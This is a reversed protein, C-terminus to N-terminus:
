FGKDMSPQKGDLDTFGYELAIQRTILVQGTKKIVGPDDALAVVCRGVFQPSENYTTSGKRSMIMETKTRGPCLSIVSIHYKRLEHAMDAALRNVCAKSAGYAVNSNYEFGASSTLHIILGSKREMMMQAAYASAVYNSRVGVNFMTDWFSGPAQHKWFKTAFGGKGRQMAQYGSWASNVLIDLKGQEQKIQNFVKEVDADNNHDCQIAIAQGGSQTIAEITQQLSGSLPV